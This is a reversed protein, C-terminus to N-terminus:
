AEPAVREGRESVTGASHARFRRVLAAYTLRETRDLRWDAGALDRGIGIAFMRAAKIAEIGVQADEIAACNEYPVGLM